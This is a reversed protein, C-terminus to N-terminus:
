SPWAPPRGLAALVQEIATAGPPAPVSPRFAAGPELREPGDPVRQAIYLAFAVVDDDPEYPVDLSRAVDWGHMVYDVFHFSIAMGAPFEMTPSIEPLAFSRETAGPEGFAALVTEVAAPYAGVPDEHPPRVWSQPDAGDGRSAAAFGYHQTIMHELLDRLTWDACPTPRTLDASRAQSVIRASFEVARRNLGVFDWSESAM